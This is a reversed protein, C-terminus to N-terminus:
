DRAKSWKRLSFACYSCLHWNLKFPEIYDRSTVSAYSGRLLEATLNRFTRDTDRGCRDCNIQVSMPSGGMRVVV